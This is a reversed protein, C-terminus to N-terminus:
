STFIFFSFFTIIILIVIVIWAVMALIAFLKNKKKQFLPIVGLIPTILCLLSTSGLVYFLIGPAEKYLSRDSFPDIIAVVLFVWYGVLICIALLGTIFGAIGLRSHPLMPQPPHLDSNNEM